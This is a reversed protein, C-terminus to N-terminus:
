GKGVEESETLKDHCCIACELRQQQRELCFLIITAFLQYHQLTTSM